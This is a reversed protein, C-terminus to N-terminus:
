LTAHAYSRIEIQLRQRGAKGRAPEAKRRQEQPGGTQRENSREQYRPVEEEFEVVFDHAIDFLSEGSMVGM